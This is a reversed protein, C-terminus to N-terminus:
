ARFAACFEEHVSVPRPKPGPKVDLAVPLLEAPVGIELLQAHRHVSMTGHDCLTAVHVGSIGMRRGIEAFSLKKREIWLRLAEQRTPIILTPNFPLEM